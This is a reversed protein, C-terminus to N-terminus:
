KTNNIIWDTYFERATKICDSDGFLCMLKVIAQQLSMENDEVIDLSWGM